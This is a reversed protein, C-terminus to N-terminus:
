NELVVGECALCILEPLSANIKDLTVCGAAAEEWSLGLCM